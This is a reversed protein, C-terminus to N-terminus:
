NADSITTAHYLKKKLMTAQTKTKQLILVTSSAIFTNHSRYKLQM